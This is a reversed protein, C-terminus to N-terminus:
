IFVNKPCIKEESFEAVSVLQDQYILLIRENEKFSNNNQYLFQGKKIKELEIDNINIKNLTLEDLPAILIENIKNNSYIESIDELKVSNKVPFKGARTRILGSLTAGCGLLKGLDYAISRVYTGSTCDMDVVLVPHETEQELVEVLKINEITVKRTPIEEVEINERAYEYLRKGKYHIASYIPPTQTIEGSFTLLAKEVAEVDLIVPTSHIIEGEMDYTTTEIGLKIFAKYAKTDDLYQILKTAKGLCIPLVGEAMPDLTGTHGIQKMKLIKRLKSIVDHSTIGKPKYINLIGFM